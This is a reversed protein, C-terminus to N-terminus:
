KSTATYVGDWHPGPPRSKLEAIEELYRRSPADGPWLESVKQFLAAAEDWQQGVYKDVGLEFATIAELETGQAQGMDRLEYIRVPKRKGKVRVAGLRRAIVHDKAQTFTSESMLIRTEYEKNTGELRSALNVSDGMVTYDFRVDSGMNGVIMPGSNIGVGIDFEPLNQERWAAKLRTLEGLFRVSARCARVAHDEQELPAGWFAMMADGIYKDLTGGEEFVIQTMPTLYSNIFKVLAEPAMRESLTTFGRIDSFLVTMEKKEGGLKLKEPNQLMQEMVSKNLYHQFASRLFMKERDTSIYGLFILGFACSFVNLMPVVTALQLRATSFLWQDVLLYGGAVLAVTLLKWTFRARPLVLAFIVAAALMFLIEVFRMYLPRSLFAGSLINSLISAHTFVGAEIESFPTVRQDFFGVLSVGILVAKGKVLAPDFANDVLDAMAIKPFVSNHGSHNILVYPETVQMPIRLLTGDPKRLRAGSLRGVDKDYTPEITADFYVAATQLALSPVLGGPGDLRAFLPHRRLTGDTDPTANFHGMYRAHRAFTPLWTQASFNGYSPVQRDFEFYGPSDPKYFRRLLHPELIQNYEAEKNLFEDRQRTPYAAVGQIVEPSRALVEALANDPSIAARTQLSQKLAALEVTMRSGQFSQDLSKIVEGYAVAAHDKVEDTFFMDMGVAKVGAAHLNDLAKAMLPRPWPWLGYKQASPEDVVAVLVDPHVPIPGRLRFQIDTIRGEMVAIGRLLAQDVGTSMEAGPAVPNDDAWFHLASFALAISLALLEFRRRSFLQKM